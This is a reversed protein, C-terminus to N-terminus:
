MRQATFEASVRETSIRARSSIAEATHKDSRLVASQGPGQLALKHICVENWM